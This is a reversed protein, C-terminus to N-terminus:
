KQTTLFKGNQALYVAGSVVAMLTSVWLFVTTIFNAATCLTGYCSLGGVVPLAAEHEAGEPTAGEVVLRVVHGLQEPLDDVFALELTEEGGDAEGDDFVM